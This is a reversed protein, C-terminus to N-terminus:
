KKEHYHPAETTGTSLAKFAQHFLREIKLQFDTSIIARFSACRVINDKTIAIQEIGARLLKGPHHGLIRGYLYLQIAWDRDIQEMFRDADVHPGLDKGSEFCRIYGLRPEAGWSSFAGNVKWDIVTGDTLVLDPKGRCVSREGEFELETEQDIGGYGIGEKKLAELPGMRYHQMIAEAVQIASRNQPTIDELLEALKFRKNLECKVMSDFAIGVAMPLTQEYASKPLVQEVKMLRVQEPCGLYKIFTTPSLYAFKEQSM